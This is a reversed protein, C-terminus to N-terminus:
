GDRECVVNLLVHKKDQRVIKLAHKLADVLELPNEVMIGVGGCAEAIKDFRVNIDFDCLAFSDSRAAWGNKHSGKTSMKITSWASDNFVIILIPLNYSAAVHHASLPTNFMYSGDGLTVVITQDPSAIKGGLAAGLSWGLGSAPSNEFWSDVLKRPVQVPDLNYENFIVTQDDIVQGICHSLFRKTIKTKKGDELAASRQKKFVEDHQKQARQIREKGLEGGQTLDVTKVQSIKACIADLSRAPDGAVSIDVPFGRAPVRHFLPDVGIQILTPITELKVHAPM